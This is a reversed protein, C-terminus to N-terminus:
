PISPTLGEEGLGSGHIIRTFRIRRICISCSQFSTHGSIRHIDLLLSAIIINKGELPKPKSAAAIRGVNVELFFSWPWLGLGLQSIKTQLLRKTDVYQM